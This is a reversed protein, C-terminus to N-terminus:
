NVRKNLGGKLVDKELTLVHVVVSALAFFVSFLSCARCLLEMMVMWVALCGLLISILKRIVTAM